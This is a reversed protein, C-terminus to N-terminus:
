ITEWEIFSRWLWAFMSNYVNWVFLNSISIVIWLYEVFARRHTASVCVWVRQCRCLKRIMLDITNRDSRRKKTKRRKKQENLKFNFSFFISFIHFLNKDIRQVYLAPPTVPSLAHNYSLYFHIFIILIITNEMKKEDEIKTLKKKEQQENLRSISVMIRCISRLYVHAFRSNDGFRNCTAVCEWLFQTFCFCCFNNLM